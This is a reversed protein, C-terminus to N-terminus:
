VHCVFSLIFQWPNVGTGLWQFGAAVIGWDQQERPSSYLIFESGTITDKTRVKIPGVLYKHAKWSLATLLKPTAM